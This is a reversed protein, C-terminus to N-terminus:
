KSILLTVRHSKETDPHYILIDKKNDRNMDVSRMNREDNPMSVAVKQPQKAYLKPGPIGLYIHMENWNKGIIIDYRNDGNVDGYLVAPFFVRETEFIELAPRIKRRYTPKRQYIGEHMRYCELDIAISKGAMARIMGGLTTKVDKYLIDVDGDGDIDEWWQYAYGWPLLGGAKGKPRISLRGESSFKIGENGMKGFYIEYMSKLNGLSRGELTHIVMDTVGDGNLDRFMHLVSRKTKKRFGSILAFTNEGEYGFALSYVGDNDFEVDVTFTTPVASFTGQPNQHYVDFHDENWFVIDNRKDGDYDVLHFRSMYWLVTFSNIGVDRYIQKEDLATEDLFPDSPGLKIPYTFMGNDLQTSVWFGDIDPLVFDDRGDGNPDQSINVYPIEKLNLPNFHITIDILKHLVETEPDFWNLHGHQYTILRDRGDINAIDVFLVEQHLTTKISLEWNEKNFSYISLHRANDEDINLVAIDATEGNLLFGTLISQHKASGTLIEYQEFSYPNPPLPQVNKKLTKSCGLLSICFVYISLLGFLFSRFIHMYELM